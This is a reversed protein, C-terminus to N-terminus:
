GGTPYFFRFTPQPTPGVAEAEYTDVIEAARKLGELVNNLKALDRKKGAIRFDLSQGILDPGKTKLRRRMKEHRAIAHETRGIEEATERTAHGVMARICDVPDSPDQQANFIQDLIDTIIQMAVATPADRESGDDGTEDYHKRREPNALLRYAKQARDFAEPDGGADPHHRKVADRHAAKIEEPSADKPVGLDSYPTSM